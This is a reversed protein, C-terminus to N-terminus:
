SVIHGEEAIEDLLEQLNTRPFLRVEHTNLIRKATSVAESDDDDFQGVILLQMPGHESDEHNYLSRGEVAYKASRDELATKTKPFVVPAILNLRGNQYAYPIEEVRDLVPVKVKIKRKILKSLKPTSFREELTEYLAASKNIAKETAKAEVLDHFM